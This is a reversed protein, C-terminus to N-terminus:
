RRKTDLDRRRDDDSVVEMVLDARVWYEDLVQPAHEALMFVVDPERFKGEWLRVRIPAFRVRGLNRSKALSFLLGYLYAVIGQHATTPMVLVEISGHSFEVLRNGPLAPYEEESWTGQDPFLKAVEWAPEAAAGGPIIKTPATTM